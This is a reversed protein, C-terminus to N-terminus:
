RTITEPVPGNTQSATLTADAAPAAPAPAPPDPTTMAKYRAAIHGIGAGALTIPLNSGLFISAQGGVEAGFESYFVRTAEEQQAATGYALTYDLVENKRQKAPWLRVVPLSTLAAYTGPHPRGQVIKAQGAQEQALCPIDSYIYISDTYPNYKDMGFVRGPLVTYVVVGLTGVTYRWGAGVEKNERLRQWEGAPDYENIRVKTSTLGNIELYEALNQETELSVHHNVARRDWVIIKKPIGFVWGVADIVKRPQGHEFQLSTGVNQEATPPLRQLPMEQGCLAHASGALALLALLITRLLREM